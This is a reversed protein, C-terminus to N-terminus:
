NNRSEAPIPWERRLLKMSQMIKGGRIYRYVIESVVYYGSLFENKIEVNTDTYDINEVNDIKGADGEGKINDDGLSEDRIKLANKVIMDNDYILVPIRQYRYINYNVEEMTVNLYMKQIEDLNQHNLIQSYMFNDHMNGNEGSHQKGIYKYKIQTKYFDEDKRGKLLIKDNESGKTTLPDVFFSDFNKEVNDYYQCYRKYGNDMWTRGSLNGLGHKIIYLDSGKFDRRNTIVLNGIVGESSNSGDSSNIDMKMSPTVLVSDLEDTEDFQKNLNVLCLYYYPDIYSTFFSDENLYATKTIESIFKITPDYPCIRNMIDNTGEVNSAFGLGLEECVSMLHNFSSDKTYGKCKESFIGPIKLVGNFTFIGFEGPAYDISEIDFDLRIPRLKNAEDGKLYLSIVDGDKPYDLSTFKKETDIVTVIIRPLFGTLELIFSYLDNKSIKNTNIQIMPYASGEIKSQKMSNHVSGGSKEEKEKLAELSEADEIGMADPQITPDILSLISRDLNSM